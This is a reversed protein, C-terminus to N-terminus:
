PRACVNDIWFEQGGVKLKQVAGTLIVVGKRDGAVPTTSVSIDVGGIPNPASALEGAFIASDNVSINEFGGLDLFEFRVASPTFGVGSFDFELNINNTRM